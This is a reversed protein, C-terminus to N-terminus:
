ANRQMAEQLSYELTASFSVDPPCCDVYTVPKGEWTGRQVDSALNQEPTPRSPVASILCALHTDKGVVKEPAAPTQPDLISLRWKEHFEFSSSPLIQCCKLLNQVSPMLM